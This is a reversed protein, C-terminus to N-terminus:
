SNFMVAWMIINFIVEYMQCLLYLCNIHFASEQITEQRETQRDVTLGEPQHDKSKMMYILSEGLKFPPVVNIYASLVATTFRSM